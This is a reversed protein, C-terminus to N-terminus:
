LELQNLVRCDICCFRHRKNKPTFKTDCFACKIDDPKITVPKYLNKHYENCCKTRCFKTNRSTKQMFEIGCNKCFLKRTTWNDKHNNNM